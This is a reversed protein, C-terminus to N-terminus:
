NRNRSHTGWPGVYGYGYYGRYPSGILGYYGSGATQYNPFMDFQHTFGYADTVYGAYPFATYTIPQYGYYTSNMYSYPYASGYYPSYYGMGPGCGYSPYYGCYQADASRPSLGLVALLAVVALGRSLAALPRAAM